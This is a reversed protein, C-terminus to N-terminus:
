KCTTDKKFKNYKEEDLVKYNDAVKEFIENSNYYITWSSVIDKNYSRFFM